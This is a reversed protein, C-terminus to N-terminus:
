RLPPPPIRVHHLVVNLKSYRHPANEDEVFETIRTRVENEIYAKYEDLQERTRLRDFTKGDDAHFKVFRNNADVLAYLSYWKNGPQKWADEDGVSSYTYARAISIRHLSTASADPESAM